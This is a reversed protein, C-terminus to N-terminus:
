KTSEYYNYHIRYDFYGTRSAPQKKTKRRHSLNLKCEPCIQDYETLKAGCAPCINPDQLWKKQEQNIEEPLLKKKIIKDFMTELINILHMIVIFYIGLISISSFILLNKIGSIIFAFVIIVILAVKILNQVSFEYYFGSYDKNFTIEVKTKINFFSSKIYFNIKNDKFSIKETNIQKKLKIFFKEPKVEFDYYKKYSYPLGM